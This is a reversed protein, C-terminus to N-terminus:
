VAVLEPNEYVTGVVEKWRVAQLGCNKRDDLYLMFGADESCWRVDYNHHGRDSVIDGEYIETGNKDIRGTYEYFPTGSDYSVWKWFGMDPMPESYVWENTQKDFAKFKSERM